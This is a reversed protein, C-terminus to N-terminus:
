AREWGAAIAAGQVAALFLWPTKCLLLETCAGAVLLTVTGAVLALAVDEAEDDGVQM